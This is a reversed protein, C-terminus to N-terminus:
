LIMQVVAIFLDTDLSIIELLPACMYLFIYSVRCFIENGIEIETVCVCYVYRLGAISPGMPALITSKPTNRVVEEGNMRPQIRSTNQAPSVKRITEYDTRNSVENTTRMTTQPTMHTICTTMPVSTQSPPQRHQQKQQLLLTELSAFPNQPVSPLKGEHNETTSTYSHDIMNGPPNSKASSSNGKYRHNNYHQLDTVDHDEHDVNDIDHNLVNSYETHNHHIAISPEQICITDDDIPSQDNNDM